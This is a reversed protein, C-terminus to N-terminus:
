KKKGSGKGGFTNKGSVNKVTKGGLGGGKKSNKDSM